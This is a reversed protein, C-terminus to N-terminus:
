MVDESREGGTILTHKTRSPSHVDDLSVDSLGGHSGDDGKYVSEDSDRGFNADNESQSTVVTEEQARLERIYKAHPKGYIFYIAVGIALWVLLRYWNASPLSLMLLLCLIAGLGPVVPSWPLRFPRPRDPQTYRLVIVAVCVITFALLTGISVLEVLISLPILSALLAVFVGTLITSKWPTGYTLHVANFFSAPLLGDRAMAYLVRPQAMMTVLLVSTMGVVAGISIFFEAFVLGHEKFARSVAVEEDLQLYPVMGVLVLSVAVYLSTSVLLSGVIGIPLDRQPNICEEAQCSVADFGIYAFFVIAAGAIVGSPDGNENTQGAVTNGFFSIGAFGYPLFPSYNSDDVFAAGVFIVFLVIGIKFCVMVNNFVASEKMGRYLIITIIATIIIAPLDIGSGTDYLYSTASEYNWPPGSIALPISFGCLEFFENLNKSWSQAVTAAGVAYELLLNWGIIWGMFEGMSERAYAYASGSSKTMAALEAYSLAAFLCTVGSFIYSLFLAPGTQDRGVRGTVVFIGAGITAGIGLSMLGLGNLTKKLEGNGKITASSASAALTPADTSASKPLDANEQRAFSQSTFFHPQKGVDGNHETGNTHGNSETANYSTNPPSPVSLLPPVYSSM